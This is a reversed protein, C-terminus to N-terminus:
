QDTITHKLFPFLNSGKHWEKIEKKKRFRKSLILKYTKNKEVEIIKVWLPIKNRSTTLLERVSELDVRNNKNNTICLFDLMRGSFEKSLDVTETEDFEILFNTSLSIESGYFIHVASILNDKLLIKSDRNM